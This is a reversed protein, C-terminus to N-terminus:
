SAHKSAYRAAPPLGLTLNERPQARRRLALQTMRAPPGPTAPTDLQHGVNRLDLRQLIAARHRRTLRLQDLRLILRLHLPRRPRHQRPQRLALPRDRHQMTMTVLPRLDRRM